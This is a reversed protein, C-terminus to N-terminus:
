QTRFLGSLTVLSREGYVTCPNSRWLLALFDSIGRRLCRCATAICGTVRLHLHALWSKPLGEGHSFTVSISCSGLMEIRSAAPTCTWNRRRAGCPAPFSTHRRAKVDKGGPLAFSTLLVVEGTVRLEIIARSGGNNDDREQHGDVEVREAAEPLTQYLGDLPANMRAFHAPLSPFSRDGVARSVHPM